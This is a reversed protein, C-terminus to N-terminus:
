AVSPFALALGDGGRMPQIVDEMVVVRRKGFANAVVFGDVGLAPLDRLGKGIEHRMENARRRRDARQPEANKLDIAQRRRCLAPEGPTASDRDVLEGM